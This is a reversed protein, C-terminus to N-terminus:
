RVDKFLRGDINAGFYSSYYTSNLVMAPSICNTIYFDRNQVTWFLFGPGTAEGYIPQLCYWYQPSYTSNYMVPDSVILQNYELDSMVRYPIGFLALNGTNDLDTANLLIVVDDEVLADTEFTEVYTKALLVIDNKVTSSMTSLTSM